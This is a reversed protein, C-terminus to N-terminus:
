LQFLHGKVEPNSWFSKTRSPVVAVNNPYCSQTSIVNPRIQMEAAFELRQAHFYCPFPFYGHEYCCPASLWSSDGSSFGSSQTMAHISTFFLFGRLAGVSRRKKEGTSSIDWCCVDKVKKEEVAGGEQVGGCGGKKGENDNEVGREEKEEVRAEEEEEVKDTEEEKM